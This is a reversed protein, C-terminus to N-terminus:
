GFKQNAAAQLIPSAVCLVSLTIINAVTARAQVPFSFLFM